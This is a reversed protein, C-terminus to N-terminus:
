GFKISHSGSMWIAGRDMEEERKLEAVRETAWLLMDEPVSGDQAIFLLQHIVPTRNCLQMDPTSRMRPGDPDLMFPISACVEERLSQVVAVRNGPQSVIDVATDQSAQHSDRRIEQKKHAESSTSQLILGNAAMRATRYFNWVEASFISTYVDYYDAFAKMSAGAPEKSYAYSRPLELSWEKLDEDLAAAEAIIANQDTLLRSSTSALLSCLRALLGILQSAAKEIEDQTESLQKSLTVVDDPVPQRTM